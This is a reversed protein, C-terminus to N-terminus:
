GWIHGMEWPCIVTRQQRIDLTKLVITEYIKDLKEIIESPITFGTETIGDQSSVYIM